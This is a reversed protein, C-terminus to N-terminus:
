KSSFSDQLITNKGETKFNDLEATKMQIMDTDRERLNVLTWFDTLTTSM